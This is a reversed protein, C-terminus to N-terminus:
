RANSPTSGAGGPPTVRDLPTPKVRLLPIGVGITLRAKGAREYDGRKNTFFAALANLPDGAYYYPLGVGISIVPVLKGAKLRDELSDRRALAFGVSFGPSSWSREAPQLTRLETPTRRDATDSQDLTLVPWLAVVAGRRSVKVEGLGLGLQASLRGSGGGTPVSTAVALNNKLYDRFETSGIADFLTGAAAGLLNTGLTVGRAHAGGGFAADFGLTFVVDRVLTAPAPNSTSKLLRTCVSDAAKDASVDISTADLAAAYAAYRQFFATPDPAAALAERGLRLATAIREQEIAVRALARADVQPSSADGARSGALNAAGAAEAVSLTKQQCRVRHTLRDRGREAAAEALGRGAQVAQARAASPAASLALALAYPLPTPRRM